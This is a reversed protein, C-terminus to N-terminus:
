CYAWCWMIMTAVVYCIDPVIFLFRKLTVTSVLNTLRSRTLFTPFNVFLDIEFTDLINICLIHRYLM